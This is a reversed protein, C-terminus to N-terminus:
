YTSSSISVISTRTEVANIATVIEIDDVTAGSVFIEDSRSQIEFLSGFSQSLQRPVITMNSVDPSVANTIFTILESVYFRDGFDWNKIDFFTNISNIIRVKLDNDNITKYPNKVVKFVSQLSEDALSGFLIKYNTTHYIIEDSISKIASLNTGFSIRLSDSSPAEPKVAAGALYNRFATDYSRTLLFIDVINSVSPDIRRDVNANHIYHFKLKDRGVNAKYNSQLELIKSNNSSVIVKKIRDENSNYFYIFSGEAYDDININSETPTATIIKTSNDIFEFIKNGAIDVTEQFFLFKEEANATGSFDAGVIEEFADPDDIIGDDDSDAFSIKIQDAAEYGDEYRITDSIEFPIDRTM